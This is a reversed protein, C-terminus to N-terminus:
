TSCSFGPGEVKACLTAGPQYPLAPALAGTTIWEGAQLSPAGQQALVAQIHSLAELPSGLVADSGGQSCRSDVQLTAKLQSFASAYAPNWAQWPGIWLGAHVGGAAVSDAVTGGWAPYPRDVFELGLAVADICEALAGATVLPPPTRGLRLVLELEVKPERWGQATPLATHHWTSSGYLWGWSPAHLGQALWNAPNTHGIKRGIPTDGDVLRQRHLKAAVEYAEDLTLGPFPELMPGGQKAVQLKEAWNSLEAKM